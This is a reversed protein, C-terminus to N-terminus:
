RRNEGVKPKTAQLLTCRDLNKSALYVWVLIVNPKKCGETRNESTLNVPKM